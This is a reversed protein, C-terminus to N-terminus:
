ATLVERGGGSVPLMCVAAPMVRFGAYDANHPMGCLASRSRRGHFVTWSIEPLSWDLVAVLCRSVM